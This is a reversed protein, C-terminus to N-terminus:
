RLPFSDSSARQKSGRRRERDQWEQRSHGPGLVSRRDAASNEAEGKGGVRGSEVRGQPGRAHRVDDDLLDVRREHREIGIRLGVRVEGLAELDAIVPQLVGEMQARADLKVVAVFQGGLVHLEGEVSQACRVRAIGVARLDRRDLFDDDDVRQGHAEVQRNRGAREQGVHRKGARRDHRLLQDLGAVVEVRLRDSAPRELEDGVLRARHDHELLVRVEVFLALGVDVPQLEVQDGVHRRQGVCNQGAGHVERVLYRWLVPLGNQRRRAQAALRQLTRAKVPQQRVVRRRRQVIRLHPLGDGM